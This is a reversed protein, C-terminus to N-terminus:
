SSITLAEQLSHPALGMLTLTVLQPNLVKSGAYAARKKNNPSSTQQYNSSGTPQSSSIGYMHINRPPSKTRDAYTQKLHIKKHEELGHGTSSRFDCVSCVFPDYFNTDNENDTEDSHIIENHSNHYSDDDDDNDDAVSDKHSSNDNSMDAEGAQSGDVTEDHSDSEININVANSRNDPRTQRFVDCRFAKHDLSGCNICTQPQNNYHFFVYQQTERVWLSSPIPVNISMFAIAEDTRVNKFRRDRNMCMILRDIQGYNGLLDKLTESSMEFPLRTIKVKDKYSSLDDIEFENENDLRIPYGLYRSIIHDYMQSSHVKILHRKTGYDAMAAIEHLPIGLKDDIIKDM